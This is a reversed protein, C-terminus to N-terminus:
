AAAVPLPPRLVLTLRGVAAATVRLFRGRPGDDVISFQRSASRTPAPAPAPQQLGRLAATVDIPTQGDNYSLEAVVGPQGLVSNPPTPFDVEVVALAPMEVLDVSVAWSAGGICSAQVALWGRSHNKVATADLLAGGAANSGLECTTRGLCAAEVLRVSDPHHDRPAPALEFRGCTGTPRGVSAFDITDVVGGLEGCSLTAKSGRPVRNACQVHGHQRWSVVVTDEAPDDHLLLRHRVTATALGMTSAPRLRLVKGPQGDSRPVAPKALGALIDTLASSVSSYMHHNRSNMGTGECPADWLEWMNGNVPELDNFRMFGYSPYDTKSLVSLVLEARGHAALLPWLNKAGIIGTTLHDDTANFSDLLVQLAQATAAESIRGPAGLALALIQNTQLGKDYTMTTTDTLWAQNFQDPLTEFAARSLDPADERGLATAMEAIQQAMLIYSFASTYAETPKVANDQDGCTPPPPVWDGYESWGPMLESLNAMSVNAQQALAADLYEAATALDGNRTFLAYLLSPLM